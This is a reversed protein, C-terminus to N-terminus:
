DMMVRAITCTRDRQLDQLAAVIFEERIKLGRLFRKLDDKGFATQSALAGGGAEYPTFTISYTDKTPDLLLIHLSGEHPM